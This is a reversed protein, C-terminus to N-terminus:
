DDELGVMRTVFEAADNPLSSWDLNSFMRDRLMATADESPLHKLAANGLPWFNGQGRSMTHAYNLAIHGPDVSHQRGLETAIAALRPAKMLRATPLVRSGAHGTILEIAYDNAAAELPEDSDREILEDVVTQGGDVHGLAIHGLEHALHFLLWSPDTRQSTLVIAPQGDIDIALGDMKKTKRPLRALHVVPIGTSWCYELLNQFSVWPEGSELIATRVDQVALSRHEIPEVGLLVFRAVREALVRALQVSQADTGQTLKFRVGQARPLELVADPDRLQAPPLGLHRAISWVAETFGAPTEAVEDDWWDPLLLSKVYPTPLGIKSLRAYLGKMLNPEKAKATKVTNELTDLIRRKPM